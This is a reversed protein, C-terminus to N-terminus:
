KRSMKHLLDDIQNRITALQENKSQVLRSWRRSGKQKRDIRRDLKAKIKNQYRRKSRLQRGNFLLTEDGDDVAALHIEGLDIGAVQEGKTRDQPEVEYQCCLVYEGDQFVMEVRTPKAHPWEFELPASGRGRSLTLTGDQFRISQSKWVVKNWTKQRHPPRADGRDRQQRWSDLADYLQDAVAQISQAALGPYRASRCLWRQLDAQDLWHDQRRVIRWFWTVIESWAQGSTRALQDLEDSRGIKKKRTLYMSDFRSV